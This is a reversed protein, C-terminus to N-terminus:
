KEIRRLTNYISSRSPGYVVYQVLNQVPKSEQSGTCDFGFSDVMRALKEVDFGGDGVALEELEDSDEM